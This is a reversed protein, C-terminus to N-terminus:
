LTTLNYPQFTTLNCHNTEMLKIITKGQARRGAGQARRGTGQARRGAGQARRGAGKAKRYGTKGSFMLWLM